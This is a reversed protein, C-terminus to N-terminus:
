HRTVSAKARTVAADIGSITGRRVDETAASCRPGEVEGKAASCVRVARQLDGLFMEANVTLTCDELLKSLQEWNCAYEAGSVPRRFEMVHKEAEEVLKTALQREVKLDRRRELGNWLMVHPIDRGGTFPDTRSVIIRLDGGATKEYDVVSGLWDGKILTEGELQFAYLHSGPGDVMKVGLLVTPKHRILIVDSALFGTADESEMSALIKGKANRIVIGMRAMALPPETLPMGRVTFLAVNDSGDPFPITKVIRAEPGVQAMLRGYVM